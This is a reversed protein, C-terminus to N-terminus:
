RRGAARRASRRKAAARKKAKAKRSSTAKRPNKPGTTRPTTTTAEGTLAAQVLAATDQGVVTLCPSGARLRLDGAARDVYQPDVVLNETATWGDPNALNGSAGNHVCNRQLVNGTGEPGSWSDEVNYRAYSNTILNHEVVNSDSTLTTNGGFVLGRANGDIVNRAVHNRDANPYLQIAYASSGTFVNDTIAGDVSNQAYISHDLGGNAPNGCDHFRNLRVVTRQAQGWGSNSGLIMCSKVRHNTIDNREIVTDFAMVQIGVPTSTGTVVTQRGDFNLDSLTVRNSGQPVFVVGRLTAREGPYSRVAIGAKNVRLVYDGGLQEDYTGARLCGTQGDTLSNALKQATRYPSALTGANTDAGDRAAVRDCTVASASPAAAALAAGAAVLALLARRAPRIPVESEKM